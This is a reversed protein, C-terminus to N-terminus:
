DGKKLIYRIDALLGKFDALAIEYASFKGQYYRDNPFEELLGAYQKYTIMAMSERIEIDRLIRKIKDM